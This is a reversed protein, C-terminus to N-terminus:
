PAQWKLLGPKVEMCCLVKFEHKTSSEECKRLHQRTTFLPLLEKLKNWGCHVRTVTSSEAGGGAYLIDGLYCFRDVVEISSGTLLM